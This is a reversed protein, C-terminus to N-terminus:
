TGLVWRTIAPSAKKFVGSLGLYSISLEESPGEVGHGEANRM